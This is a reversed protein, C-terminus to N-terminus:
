DGWRTADVRADPMVCVCVCACVRVCVCVSQRQERRPQHVCGIRIILTPMGDRMTVVASQSFVVDCNPKQFKAVVVTLILVNLLVGLWMQVFALMFGVHSVPLVTGHGLTILHSASFRLALVFQSAPEDSWQLERELNTNDLEMPLALLTCLLLSALYSVAAVCAAYGWSRELVLFYLPKSGGSRSARVMSETSKKKDLAHKLLM